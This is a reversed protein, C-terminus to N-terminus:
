FQVSFAKRSLFVKSGLSPVPLRISRFATKEKQNPKSFDWGFSINVATRRKNTKGFCTEPNKTRPSVKAKAVRAASLDRQFSATM